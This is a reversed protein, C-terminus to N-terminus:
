VWERAASGAQAQLYRGPSKPRVAQANRQASHRPSHGGHMQARLERLEELEKWREMTGSILSLDGPKYPM